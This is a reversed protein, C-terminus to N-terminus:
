SAATPPFHALGVPVGAVVAGAALPMGVQYILHHPHPADLVVLDARRGPALAGLDPRRLAAAGGCTASLIAEDVTFGMERVALAMALPLAVSYGSGPNCNSALAVTVGADLLARGDPYPQRTSFETLPLLTAVTGSEALADVDSRDLFTCHDASAAGMECALAVGGSRGLQHAHVRLGLGAARAAALVVRCEDPTFAGEECFVDCWRATGAAAPVMEGAVLRVYGEREHAWEPPVLHAGLLTAEPTLGAAVELHALEAEVTLGYGTKIEVTTTGWRRAAEILARARRRLQASPAARTADVTTAIGGPRYPRGAMRQAFEDARDGAFILHTHSDVLGPIVARGGADLRREAGGPAGAAPGAYVVQEGEMVVAAVEVLGLPGRGAGAQCTALVGIGTVELSTL